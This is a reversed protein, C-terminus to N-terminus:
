IGNIVLEIKAYLKRDGTLTGMWKVVGYQEFHKVASGVVFNYPNDNEARESVSGKSTKDSKKLTDQSSKHVSKVRVSTKALTDTKTSRYHFDAATPKSM